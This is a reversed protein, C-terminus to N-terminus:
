HRSAKLLSVPHGLPEDPTVLQVLLVLVRHGTEACQSRALFQGGAGGGWQTRDAQLLCPCALTKIAGDLRGLFVSLLGRRWLGWGSIGLSFPHQGTWVCGSPKRCTAGELELCEMAMPRGISWAWLAWKKQSWCGPQGGLRAM